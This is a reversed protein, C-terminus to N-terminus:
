PLRFITLREEPQGRLADLRLRLGHALLKVRWVLRQWGGVKPSGKRRRWGAHRGGKVMREWNEPDPVSLWDLVTSGQYSPLGGPPAPFPQPVYPHATIPLKDRDRWFVEDSVRLEPELGAPISRERPSGSLAMANARMTLENADCM